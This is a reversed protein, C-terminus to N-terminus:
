FTFRLTSPEGRALRGAHEDVNLCDHLTDGRDLRAVVRAETAKIQAAAVLRATATAPDLVVIGDLDAIIIDGPCVSVGGCTVPENLVGLRATAGAM